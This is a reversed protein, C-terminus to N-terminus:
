QPPESCAQVESWFITTTKRAEKTAKTRGSGEFRHSHGFGAPRPVEAALGVASQMELAVSNKKIATQGRVPTARDAESPKGIFAVPDLSVEGVWAVLQAGAKAM